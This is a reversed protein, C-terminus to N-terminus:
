QEEETKVKKTRTIKKSITIVDGSPLTFQASVARSFAVMEAASCLGAIQEASLPEYEASYATCGDGCLKSIASCLRNQRDKRERWVRAGECDCIHFPDAIADVMKMQGCFPCVKFELKKDEM